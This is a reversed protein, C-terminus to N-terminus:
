AIVAWDGARAARVFQAVTEPNSGTIEIQLRSGHEHLYHVADYTVHRRDGVDVIVRVGDPCQELVSLTRRDTSEFVEPEHSLDVRVCGTVM